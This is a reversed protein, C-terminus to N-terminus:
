SYEFTRTLLYTRQRRTFIKEIESPRSRAVSSVPDIAEVSLLAAEVYSPSITTPWQHFLKDAVAAMLPLRRGGTRSTINLPRKALACEFSVSAAHEFLSAAVSALATSAQVLQLHEHIRHGLLPRNEANSRCFFSFM